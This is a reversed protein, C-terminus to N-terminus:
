YDARWSAPAAHHAYIAICSNNIIQAGRSALEDLSTNLNYVVGANHMATMFAAGDMIHHVHGHMTTEPQRMLELLIAYPNTSDTRLCIEKFNSM